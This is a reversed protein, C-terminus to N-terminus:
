VWEDDRESAVKDTAKEEPPERRKAFNYMVIGLSALTMGFVNWLTVPNRFFLMSSVIVVIRKTVNAVSYTVPTVMSLFMFAAVSQLLNCIANGLLEYFILKPSADMKDWGDGWVVHPGEVFLWIPILLVIAARSVILLLTLAHMKAKMVKKSFINQVSFTCTAILASALGIADFSLETMSAIAVGLIVPVLSLYITPHFHQDLVFRSLLVTFLPTLAKVTHVYSLPVKLISLQSSISALLKLFALPLVWRRVDNETVVYTRAGFLPMLIPLVVNMLLLQFLSITIPFKFENLISKGFVNNLSSSGWWILCLLVPRLEFM